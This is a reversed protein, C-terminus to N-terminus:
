LNKCGLLNRIDSFAAHGSVHKHVKDVVKKGQEWTLTKLGAIQASACYLESDYETDQM